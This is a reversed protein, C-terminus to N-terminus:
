AQPSLILNCYEIANRLPTSLMTKLDDYADRADSDNTLSEDFFTAIVVYEQDLFHNLAKTPDV